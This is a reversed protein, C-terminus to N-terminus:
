KLSQAPLRAAAGSEKAVYAEEFRKIEEKVENFEPLEGASKLGLYGLLDFTPRYLFRRQDRKDPLREILGRVMLNRVIFTSNVGRVYDIEPRSLPGKYLIIALTELGARGLDRRYEEKTLHKILEGLAPATGLAVENDKSIVTIGRESLRTKLTEVAARIDTEKEKLIEALKKIPVPEAKWFLIAEIKADLTM